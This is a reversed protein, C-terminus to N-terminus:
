IQISEPQELKYKKAVARLRQAWKSPPKEDHIAQVENIFQQGLNKFPGDVYLKLNSASSHEMEKKYYKDPIIAGVACKTGNPARYLCVFLGDEMYGAKKMQKMLHNCMKNFAQQQSIAM